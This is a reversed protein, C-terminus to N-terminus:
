AETGSQEVLRRQGNLLQHVHRKLVSNLTGTEHWLLVSGLNRGAHCHRKDASQRVPRYSGPQASIPVLNPIPM